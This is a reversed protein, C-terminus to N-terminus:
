GGAVEEEAALARFTVTEEAHVVYRLTKGDSGRVSIQQRKAYDVEPHREEGYSAAADEASITEIDRASDEGEDEDWVHWTTLGAIV